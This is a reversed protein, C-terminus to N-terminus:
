SNTFFNYFGEIARCNPNARDLLNAVIPMLLTICVTSTMSSAAAKRSVMSRISSLSPKRGTRAASPLFPNLIASVSLGARMNISKRIGPNLPISTQLCIRPAPMFVGSMTSLAM